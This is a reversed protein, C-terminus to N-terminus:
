GVGRLGEETLPVEAFDVARTAIVPFLVQGELGYGSAVFGLHLDDRDGDFEGM